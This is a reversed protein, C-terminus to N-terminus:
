EDSEEMNPIDVTDGIVVWVDTGDPVGITPLLAKAQELYWDTVLGGADTLGKALAFQPLNGKFNRAVSQGHEGEVVTEQINSMAVGDSAGKVISTLLAALFVKDQQSLYTGKVGFESDGGAVFGVVNRKFHHGSKLVCSLTHPTVVVHESSLDAMSNALMTCGQLPIKSGNPGTVAYDLQILTGKSYRSNARFGTLLKAKVFSGAPLAYTRESASATTAFVQVGTSLIRTTAKPMPTHFSAPGDMPEASPPDFISQSEQNQQSASPPTSAQEKLEILRQLEQNNSLQQEYLQKYESDLKIDNDQAHIRTGTKAEVPIESARLFPAYLLCVAPLIHKIM